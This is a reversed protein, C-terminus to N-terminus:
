VKAVLEFNSGVSRLPTKLIWDDAARMERYGARWGPLLGALKLTAGQRPPHQMPPRITASAFAIWKAPYTAMEDFHRQPRIM